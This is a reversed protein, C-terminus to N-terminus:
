LDHQTLQLSFLHSQETSEGVYHGIAKQLTTCESTNLRENEGVCAAVSGSGFSVWSKGLTSELNGYLGLAVEAELAPRFYSKIDDWVICM